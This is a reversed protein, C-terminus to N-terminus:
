AKKAAPIPTTTKAPTPAPNQQLKKNAEELRKDTYARAFLFAAGICILVPAFIAIDLPVKWSIFVLQFIPVLILLTAAMLTLVLTWHARVHQQMTDYRYKAQESIKAQQVLLNQREAAIKERESALEQELLEAKRQAQRMLSLLEAVHLDETQKVQFELTKAVDRLLPPTHEPSLVLTHAAEEVLKSAEETVTEHFSQDLEQYRRQLEQNAEHLQNCEEIAERLHIEYQEIVNQNDRHIADMKQELQAQKQRYQYNLHHQEDLEWRLRKNEERLQAVQRASTKGSPMEGQIKPLMDTNKYRKENIIERRSAARASRDIPGISTNYGTDDPSFM